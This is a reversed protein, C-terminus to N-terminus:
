SHMRCHSGPPPLFARNWLRSRSFNHVYGLRNRTGGSMESSGLVTDRRYFHGDQNVAEQEIRQPKQDDQRTVGAM